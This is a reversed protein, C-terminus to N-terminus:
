RGVEARVLDRYARILNFLSRRDIRLRREARSALLRAQGVFLIRRDSPSFAQRSEGTAAPEQFTCTVTPREELGLAAPIAEQGSFVSTTTQELM